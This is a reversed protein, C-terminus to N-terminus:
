EQICPKLYLGLSSTVLEIALKIITLTSSAAISTLAIKIKEKNAIEM